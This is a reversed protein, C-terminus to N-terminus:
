GARRGRLKCIGEGDASSFRTEETPSRPFVLPVAKFAKQHWGPVRLCCARHVRHHSHLPHWDDSCGSCWRDVAEMSTPDPSDSEVLCQVGQWASPEPVNQLTVGARGSVNRMTAAAARRSVLPEDHDVLALLAIAAHLRGLRLNIQGVGACGLVPSVLVPYNTM